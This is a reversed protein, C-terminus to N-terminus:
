RASRHCTLRAPVCVPNGISKTSHLAIAYSKLAYGGLRRAGSPLAVTKATLRKEM